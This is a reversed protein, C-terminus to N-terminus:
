WPAVLGGIKEICERSCAVQTKGNETRQYWKPPKFWDGLHNAWGKERKGCEDCIFEVPMM